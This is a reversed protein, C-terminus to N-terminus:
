VITEYIEQAYRKEVHMLAHILITQPEPAAGTLADFLIRDALAFEALLDQLRWLDTQSPTNLAHRSM